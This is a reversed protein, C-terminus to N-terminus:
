ESVNTPNEVKVDYLDKNNVWERPRTTRYLRRAVITSTQADNEIFDFNVTNMNSEIYTWALRKNTPKCYWDMILRQLQTSYDIGPEMPDSWAVVIIASYTTGSVLGGTINFLYLVKNGSMSPYQKWLRLASISFLKQTVTFPTTTSSTYYDVTRTTPTGYSSFGMNCTYTQGAVPVLLKHITRVDPNKSGDVNSATFYVNHQGDNRNILYRSDYPLMSSYFWMLPGSRAAIFAHRQLMEPVDITKGDRKPIENWEAQDEEPIVLRSSNAAYWTAFESESMTYFDPVGSTDPLVLSLHSFNTMSLKLEFDTWTSNSPYQIEIVPYKQQQFNLEIPNIRQFDLTTTLGRTQAFAVGAGLAAFGLISFLITKLRM